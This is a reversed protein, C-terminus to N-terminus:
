FSLLKLLNNNESKLKIMNKLHTNFSTTSKNSLTNGSIAITIFNIILFVVKMNLTFKNYFIKM